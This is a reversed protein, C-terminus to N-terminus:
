LYYSRAPISVNPLDLKVWATGTSTSINLAWGNISVPSTTRNFLEVYDARPQGATGTTSSPGGWIQSIVVDGAALASSAAGLSALALCLGRLLSIARMSF